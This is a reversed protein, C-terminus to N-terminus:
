CRWTERHSIMPFSDHRRFAWTEGSIDVAASAAIVSLMAVALVEREGPRCLHDNRRIWREFGTPMM